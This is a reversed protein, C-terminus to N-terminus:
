ETVNVTVILYFGRHYEGDDAFIEDRGFTITIDDDQFMFTFCDNLLANYLFDYDENDIRKYLSDYTVYEKELLLSNKITEKEFKTITEIFLEYTAQYFDKYDSFGDKLLIIKMENKDYDHYFHWLDAAGLHKDDYKENLDLSFSEKEYLFSEKAEELTMADRQEDSLSNYYDEFENMTKDSIMLGRFRERYLIIETVKSTNILKKDKQVLSIYDYTVYKEIDKIAKPKGNEDTTVKDDEDIDDPSTPLRLVPAEKETILPNDNLNPESTDPTTTDSPNTTDTSTDPPNTTSDKNVFFLVACGIIAILAVISVIIIIKKKNM